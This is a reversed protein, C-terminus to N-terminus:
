VCNHKLLCQSLFKLIIIQREFHLCLGWFNRPFVTLSRTYFGKLYIVLSALAQPKVGLWLQFIETKRDAWREQISNGLWVHPLQGLPETYLVTFIPATAKRSNRPSTFKPLQWQCHSVFDETWTIKGSSPQRLM